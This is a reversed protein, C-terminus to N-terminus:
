PSVEGQHLSGATVHVYFYQIHRHYYLIRALNMYPLFFLVNNCYQYSDRIFYEVNHVYSKHLIQSFQPLETNLNLYNILHHNLM